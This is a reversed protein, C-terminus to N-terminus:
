SAISRLIPSEFDEFRAIWSYGCEGCQTMPGFEENTIIEIEISRCVYCTPFDFLNAMAVGM